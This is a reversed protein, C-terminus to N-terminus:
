PKPPSKVPRQSELLYDELHVKYTKSCGGFHDGLLYVPKYNDAFIKLLMPRDYLEGTNFRIEAFRIEGSYNNERFWREDPDKEYKDASHDKIFKEAVEAKVRLPEHIWFRSSRMESNPFFTKSVFAATTEHDDKAGRPIIAFLEYRPNLTNLGDRVYIRYTRYGGGCVQSLVPQVSIFGAILIAWFLIKM